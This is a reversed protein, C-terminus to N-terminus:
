ISLLTSVAEYKFMVAFFVVSNLSKLTKLGMLKDSPPTPLLFCVLQDEVLM